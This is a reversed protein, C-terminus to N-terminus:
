NKQDAGVLALLDEESLVEVGLRDAKALKSGANAGAIVATTKRSVSSSIKAGLRQLAAKAEERTMNELTGTLVYANGDLPQEQQRTPEVHPWQIGAQLLKEVVSRNHDEGFFAAINAAVVPGVDPVDRLQEEDAMMLGRLDGFYGALAQATADGVERIGLAYIFRPLTTNKSKEIANILNGASKDGMRELAAVQETSLDYIDDVHDILQREVLQEVLKDGLGEIDMARRSAFHKIAEKRQAPCILGGSCRAVAEGEARTVNSGCVPCNKPLKVRRAGKRRRETLVSVVQPIVDGARRVVVTDGVRVDRREVEDMNHLTANSVTVGGVFVPDLEAVPTLAGTRGVQFAVARVVTLEEQAPFKHAVAWRPARSVFGLRAQLDLRNVKYVVGDIEYPLDDRLQLIRGYYQLCGEPGQVLEGQPCVRLGWARLRELMEGHTDAVAGNEVVGVTYCFIALPRKATLGPDLQRLSGAAANRPNVLTKEGKELARANFAAFGDKPMYVEGRVDLTRPHKKGVLRLPVSKITRINQTIDEGTVGDGRTAARTLMGKEYLLSVALGDLKPEAAYEITNDEGLRDRVRKDFAHLEEDGFANALSLMPVDHKVEAFAGLPKAGVRQTPSDPTVLEPHTAELAELERLKRDYEVDPLQPDDLVYYRYSHYDLEERLATIRSQDDRPM